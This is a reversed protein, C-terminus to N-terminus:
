RRECLRSERMLKEVRAVAGFRGVKCPESGHRRITRFFVSINAGNRALWKALRDHGLSAAAMVSTAGDQTAQNMNAGLEVLASVVKLHGEQTAILLPTIGDQTARNVNAGLEVLARVVELHREQTAIHLPRVGDQPGM